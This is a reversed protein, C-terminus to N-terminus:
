NIEKKRVDDIRVWDGFTENLFREKAHTKDKASLDVRFKGGNYQYRITYWEEGDKLDEKFKSLKYKM